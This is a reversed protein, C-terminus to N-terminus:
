RRSDVTPPEMLWSVADRIYSPMETSSSVHKSLVQAFRGKGNFIAANLVAKGYDGLEGSNSFDEPVNAQLDSFRKAYRPHGLEEFTEILAQLMGPLALSREFTTRNRFTRVFESEQIASDADDNRELEPDMAIADIPRDGDCIM